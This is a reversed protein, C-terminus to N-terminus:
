QSIPEGGTGGTTGEGITGATAAESATLLATFEESWEGASKHKIYKKLHEVMRRAAGSQDGCKFLDMEMKWLLEPVEEALYQQYEPPRMAEVTGIRTENYENNTENPSNQTVYEEQQRQQEQLLRRAYRAMNERIALEQEIRKMWTNRLETLHSPKRLPPLFLNDYLDELDMPSSPWNEVKSGDIDYAKAFVSAVASQKLVQEQDAMLKLDDFVDRVIVKAKEVIDQRDATSSAAELSLMLWRLQHRLARRFGPKDLKDKEKKKWDRFDKAKRKTDTYEVKEICKLYFELTNADSTMASRYASIANAFRADNRSDVTERLKELQDLLAERDASTLSQSFATGPVTAVCLLLILNKM